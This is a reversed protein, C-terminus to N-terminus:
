SSRARVNAKRARDFREEQSHLYRQASRIDEHGLLRMIDHIPVNDNALRTGFTHRLDHPTPQPDDVGAGPIAPRYAHGRVVPREPLGKLAPTWVRRHWNSYRLAESTTSTFLLRGPVDRPFVGAVSPAALKAARIKAAISDGYTVTRNGAASKAYPRATGDREMVWAIHIRQQKTDVLTPPVVAAEEWRMGTDLILEVFLRADPRGPFMADLSALLRREERADLVRDVHADREPKKVKHAPNVRLIKADIAQDFLARLVGVAGEITAAGVGARQMSVVWASVDTKLVSGLQTRGWRPEVHCRWHSEDRKRSAKELHRGDKCRDWWATILIKAQRPDIWDGHRIQSKQEDAWDNAQSKQKFSETLRGAPTRVTAAWLGSPLKRIWGNPM